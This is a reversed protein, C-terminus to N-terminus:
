EAEEALRVADGTQLGQGNQTIFLADEMKGKWKGEPDELKLIAVQHLVRDRIGVTAILRRVTGTQQEKGDADKETKVDEVIEVGPPDQDETLAAEPIALSDKGPLTLVRLRQVVNGRLHAENNPFRVKVAFCGTDAEAQPAIFVVRGPADTTQEQSSKEDLGGVAASQGIKLQAAVHQSVFSLVDIQDELDVVVAIEAGLALTQGLAVQVRGLRGKRPTTLTYLQLQKQATDVDKNAQDLKLETSALTSRATEEAGKARNMEPESVLTIKSGNEAGQRKLNQLSAVQETALRLATQAQAKDQKATEVASKAKELNFRAIRDDLHAIVAGATVEDGEHIFKGPAVELLSDIRGDIPATVHAVCEPLPSTTGVIETWQELAVTQAPEWKVPAAPTTEAKPAQTSCGALLVALLGAAPPFAFRHRSCPPRM